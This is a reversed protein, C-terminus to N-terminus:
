YSIVIMVLKNPYVFLSHRREKACFLRAPQLITLSRNVRQHACPDRTHVIGKKFFFFCAGRYDSLCEM